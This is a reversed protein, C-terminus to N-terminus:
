TKKQSFNIYIDPGQNSFSIYLYLHSILPNWQAQFTFFVLVVVTVIPHNKKWEGWKTLTADVFFNDQWSKYFTVIWVILVLLVCSICHNLISNFSCDFFVLALSHLSATSFIALLIFLDRYIHIFYGQPHPYLFPLLLVREAMHVFTHLPAM